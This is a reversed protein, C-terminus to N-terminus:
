AAQRQSGVTMQYENLLRGTEGGLGPRLSVCGPHSWAVCGSRGDACHRIAYTPPAQRDDASPSAEALLEAVEPSSDAPDAPLPSPTLSAEIRDADGADVSGGTVMWTVLSVLVVALGTGILILASKM